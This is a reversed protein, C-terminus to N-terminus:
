SGEPWAIHGLYICLDTHGLNTSVCDTCAFCFALFVLSLDVATMGEALPDSSQLSEANSSIHSTTITHLEPPSVEPFLTYSTCHLSSSSTYSFGHSSLSPQPLPSPGRSIVPSNYASGDSSTTPFSWSAAPITCPSFPVPSRLPDHAPRLGMSAMTSLIQPRAPHLSSLFGPHSKLRAPLVTFSPSM